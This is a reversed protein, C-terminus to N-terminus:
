FRYGGLISLGTVALDGEYTPAPFVGQSQAFTTSMTYAGTVFVGSEHSWGGTVGFVVGSTTTDLNAVTPSQFGVLGGAFIDDMWYRGQVGFNVFASSGLLDNNESASGLFYNLSFSDSFVSEYDLQLGFGTTTENVDFSTGGIKEGMTGSVQHQSYGASVGFGGKPAAFVTLAPVFFM